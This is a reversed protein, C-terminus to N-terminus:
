FVLVNAVAVQKDARSQAYKQRNAQTKGIGSGHINVEGKLINLLLSSLM